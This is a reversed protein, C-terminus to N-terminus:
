PRMTGKNTKRMGKILLARAINWSKSGGRGGYLVRYRAKEPVFLCKLKAPFRAKAKAEQITAM